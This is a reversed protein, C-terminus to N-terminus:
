NVKIYKKFPTETKWRGKNCKSIELVQGKINDPIRMKIRERDTFIKRIEYEGFGEGKLHAKFIQRLEVFLKAVNPREIKEKEGGNFSFEGVYLTPIRPCKGKKKEM